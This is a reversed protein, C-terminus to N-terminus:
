AELLWSNISEAINSTLHGYRNGYFHSEAWQEPPAHELLWPVCEPTIESMKEIANSYGEITVSRTVDWLLQKLLPNKFRKNLNEYLHGNCYPHPSKPFLYPVAELLGKQCDSLFTLFHPILHAPANQEVVEYLHDM